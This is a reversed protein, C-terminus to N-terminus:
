EAEWIIYVGTGSAGTNFTWDLRIKESDVSIVVARCYQLSNRINIASTSDYLQSSSGSADVYALQYFQESSYTWIGEGIAINDTDSAFKWSFKIRKPAKGLGHYIYQTNSPTNLQRMFIGSTKTNGYNPKFNSGGIMGWKGRTSNWQLDIVTTDSISTPLDYNLGEFSTGWTINISTNLVVIWSYKPVRNSLTGQIEGTDGTTSYLQHSIEHWFRTTTDGQEYDETFGSPPNFTVNTNIYALGFAIVANNTKTTFINSYKIATTGDNYSRYKAISIPYSTNLNPCRFTSTTIRLAVSQSFSWTYYTGESSAIKYYLCYNSGPIQDLLTWGAPATIIATSSNISVMAFMIDGDATNAPKTASFATASSSIAQTADIFSLSTATPTIEIRLDDGDSPTGSLNTTFSSIAGSQATLKYMNYTNTDISPTANSAETLVSRGGGGQQDLQYRVGGITVYFHSNDFEVAGNEPTDLLVGSTFKLPASSAVATGATLHLRATPATLGIGVNGSPLISLIETTPFGTSYRNAYSYTGIALRSATDTFGLVAAGSGTWLNVFKSADSREFVIGPNTNTGSVIRVPFSPTGSPSGGTGTIDLNTAPFANGIGVNGSGLVTMLISGTGLNNALFNAKTDSQIYFGGSSDFDFASGSTGALLAAAKGGSSTNIVSMTPTLDAAGQSFRFDSVGAVGHLLASPSTTGIGVRHNTSDVFLTNTDVTLNHAGLNVASTAGTYPVKETDLEELASQVNTSSIGGIPVFTVSSAPMSGTSATTATVQAVRIDQVERLVSGKVATSYSARYEFIMRYLPRVEKDAVVPYTAQMDSWNVARANVITGYSAPASWLKIATGNRPDQISTIFYVFFRKDPVPTRVGTSTIYNPVNSTFDFPFRTAPLIFQVGSANQYRIQMLASNSVTINAPTVEGLDQQWTLGGTSNTITYELNDDLNVLTTLGVCTNLGSANPTGVALASNALIGGSKWVAGYKHKWDHDSGSINNPHIEYAETIAKASGSLTSNWLIRYIPAYIRYSSPETQSAIPNGSQDFSFYWIGSTDTFAPFNVAGIKTYKTTVGGGDTFVNFSAGIPTVTLIRTTYDISITVPTTEDLGPFATQKLNLQTITALDSVKTSSDKIIKGTIGDFIVINADVSSAPGLVDGSGAGPDGKIAVLNWFNIDTPLNGTSEHICIYSSGLYYVVDNIDYTTAGVYVDKWVMGPNGTDGKDGKLSTLAGVLTVTSSDDLVFVLDNGVFSASIIKAGTDGKLDTKADTLIVTTSDDLTFVMDNGSFVVSVIKAGTDGQAGKNSNVLAWAGASKYYVYSNVSTDFAWDGNMGVSVDPIGVTSYITSGKPIGFDYIAHYITGVNVITPTADPALKTVTGVDNTAADGHEGKYNKWLGAFDGVVPSPIEIESSLIAIYDKTANFVLTFGTGDDADAYAIYVYADHGEIESKPSKYVENDGTAKQFVLYDEAVPTETDLDKIQIKDNDM